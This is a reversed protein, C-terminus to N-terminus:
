CGSVIGRGCVNNYAEQLKDHVRSPDLYESHYARALKMLRLREARDKRLQDVYYMMEEPTEVERWGKEEAPLGRIAGKRAVIARGAALAEVVKIQVGTGLATPIIIIGCQEYPLEVRDYAGHVSM